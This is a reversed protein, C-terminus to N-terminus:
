SRLLRTPVIPMFEMASSFSWPRRAMGEHVGSCAVNGAVNERGVTGDSSGELAATRGEAQKRVNTEGAIAGEGEIGALDEHEEGVANGFGGVSVALLPSGGAGQTIEARLAMQGGALEDLAEEEFGLVEGAVLRL